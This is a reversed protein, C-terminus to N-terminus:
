NLHVANETNMIITKSKIIYYKSPILKFKTRCKKCTCEIEGATSISFNSFEVSGCETCTMNNVDILGDDPLSKTSKIQASGIHHRLTNIGDLIEKFKSDQIYKYIGLYVKSDIDLFIIYEADVEKIIVYGESDVYHTNTGDTFIDESSAIYKKNLEAKYEAIYCQDALCRLDKLTM